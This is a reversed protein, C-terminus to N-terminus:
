LKSSLRFLLFLLFMYPQSYKECTSSRIRWSREPCLHSPHARQASPAEVQGELVDAGADGEGRDPDVVLAAHADAAVQCNERVYHRPGVWGRQHLDPTLANVVSLLPIGRLHVAACLALPQHGNSPAHAWGAKFLVSVGANTLRILNMGARKRSKSWNQM